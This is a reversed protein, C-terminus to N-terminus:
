KPWLKESKITDTFSFPRMLKFVANDGTNRVFRQIYYRKRWTKKLNIINWFMAKLTAKVQDLRKRYVYYVMASTYVCLTVPLWKVLDKLEYNKLLTQITNKRGHFAVFEVPLRKMTASRKHLVVATPVYLMKYGAFWIRLSSDTDDNLIVYDDDFLGGINEIINRKILVPTQWILCESIKDKLNTQQILGVPNMTLGRADVEEPKDWKLKKGFAAGIKENREINRVLESLWISNLAKDDNNVLCIYDGKAYILGVECGGAFGLNTNNELIRTKVNPYKKFIEKAIIVSNDTSDNDVFIFEFLPYNTRLFSELADALDYKGLYKEGNYNVM